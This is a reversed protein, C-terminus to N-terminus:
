YKACLKRLHNRLNAHWDTTLFMRRNHERQSRTTTLITHPDQECLWEVQQWAAQWRNSDDQIADYSEDIVDHFTKFGLRRMRELDRWAGFYVFLREAVFAKATKETLRTGRPDIFGEAIISCWADNYIKTPIINQTGVQHALEGSPLPMATWLTVALQDPNTLDVNECPEAHFPVHWIGRRADNGHYTLLIRDQNTSATWQRHILDRHPRRAGLLADFCYPKKTAADHLEDMLGPAWCATQYLNDHIMFWNAVHQHNSRPQDMVVDTFFAVKPHDAFLDFMQFPECLYIIVHQYRACLSEIFNEPISNQYWNVAAIAGTSTHTLEGVRIKFSRPVFANIWGGNSHITIM